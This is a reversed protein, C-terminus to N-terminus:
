FRALKKSGIGNVEDLEDLTSFRGGHQTRYAVIRKALVPGVGPLAELTQASATNLFLPFTVKAKFPKLAQQSASPMVWALAAPKVTTPAPQLPAVHAQAIVQASFQPPVQGLQRALAQTLAPLGAEPPSSVTVQPWLGLVASSLMLLLVLVFAVEALLNLLFRKSSM